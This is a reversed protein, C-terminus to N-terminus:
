GVTTEQMKSYVWMSITINWVSANIIPALRASEVILSCDAVSPMSEFRVSYKGTRDLECLFGYDRAVCDSFGTSRPDELANVILEPHDRAGAYYFTTLCAPECRTKNTCTIEENPPSVAFDACFESRESQDCVGDPPWVTPRKRGVVNFFEQRGDANILGLFLFVIVRLTEKPMDM